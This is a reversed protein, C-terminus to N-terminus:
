RPNSQYLFCVKHLIIWTVIRGNHFSLSLLSPWCNWWYWCFSCDGKMKVWQVCFLCCRVTTIWTRAQKIKISSSLLHWVITNTHGLISILIPENDTNGSWNMVWSSIQSIWSGMIRNRGKIRGSMNMVGMFRNRGKIRGSMNMVGMFRTRGKIRGSM